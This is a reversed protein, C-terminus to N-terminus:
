FVRGGVRAIGAAKYRNEGEERASKPIRAAEVEEPSDQAKATEGWCESLKSLHKTLLQLKFM